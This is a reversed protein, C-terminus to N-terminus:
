ASKITLRTKTNAGKTSFVESVM